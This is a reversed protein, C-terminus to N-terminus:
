AGPEQSKLLELRLLNLASKALYAQMTAPHTALRITHTAVRQPGALAIFARPPKKAEPLLRDGQVALGYTAGFDLRLHQAAMTAWAGGGADPATPHTGALAALPRPLKDGAAVLGGLYPGATTRAGALWQTLLASTGWEATALTQGAQELQRLVVDHLEDEDQGFVLEGLCRRITTLTPEIAARCATQDPGEASVRLTITAQSATIGVRPSRGRRVLDPLMAEIQSEGAGFCKLRHHFIVRGSGAGPSLRPVVHAQWMEHMEAPVGPLAFVRCDPRGARPVTLEIGPATGQPNPVVRSGQPFLAQRRNQEPMSRGRRAFLGCIHELAQPELALPRGTALALADRTLDDATPGLGGTAVVVESREIAQRFVAALPELEDGVVTHFGVRYGLEELRQSLWASNTDVLQGAVIEDGIAIVEANM